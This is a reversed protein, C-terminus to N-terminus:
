LRNRKYVIHSSIHKNKSVESFSNWSEQFESLNYLVYIKVKIKRGRLKELFDYTIIIVNIFINSTVNHPYISLNVEFIM